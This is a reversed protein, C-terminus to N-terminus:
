VNNTATSRARDKKFPLVLVKFIETSKPYLEENEVGIKKPIRNPKYYFTGFVIDWISIVSGYNQAEEMNASHHYRHLETGIFIYNLFGAKIEVNFHSILGQLGMLANFIFISEARAGLLILTGQIIVQVVIVNLPHLVPHMLLYVEKPLHHTIHIKWLWKFKGIGTHSIRHYWYQFFEYVLLTILAGTFISTNQLIGENSTSLDIALLPLGFKTIGVIIIGSAMWKLDRIFSKKTMKWEKKLPFLYEVLLLIGFRFGAMWAFVTKLDWDYKLTLIFLGIVSFLLVPYLCYTIIKKM